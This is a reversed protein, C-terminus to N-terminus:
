KNLKNINEERKNIFDTQDYAKMIPIDSDRDAFSGGMSSGAISGKVAKNPAVANKENAVTDFKDRKKNYDDQEKQMRQNLKDYNKLQRDTKSLLKVKKLQEAAKKFGTEVKVMNSRMDRVTEKTGRNAEITEKQIM